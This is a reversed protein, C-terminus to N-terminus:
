KGEQFRGEEGMDLHHYNQGSGWEEGAQTLDHIHSPPAESPLPAKKDELHFPGRARWSRRTRFVGQRGGGQRMVVTPM